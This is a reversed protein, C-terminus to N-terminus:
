LTRGPHKSPRSIMLIKFGARMGANPYDEDERFPELPEDEEQHQVPSPERVVSRETQAVLSLDTLLRPKLTSYDLTQSENHKSSLWHRRIRDFEVWKGCAPCMVHKKTIDLARTRPM